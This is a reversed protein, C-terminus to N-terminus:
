FCFLSVHKIQFFYLFLVLLQNPLHCFSVRPLITFRLHKAFTGTPMRLVWRTAVISNSDSVFSIESHRLWRYERGQPSILRIRFHFNKFLQFLYKLFKKRVIKKLSFKFYVMLLYIRIGTHTFLFITILLHTFLTCM